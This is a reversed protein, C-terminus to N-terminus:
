GSESDVEVVAEILWLIVVLDGVLGGCVARHGSECAWAVPEDGQHHQASSAPGGGEQETVLFGGVDIVVGVQVRDGM